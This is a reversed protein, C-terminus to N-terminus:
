RADVHGREVAEQHADLRPFVVREDEFTLQAVGELAQLPEALGLTAGRLVHALPECGLGGGLQEGEALQNRFVLVGVDEAHHERAGRARRPPRCVEVEVEGARRLEPRVPAVLVFALATGDLSCEREEAAVRQVRQLPDLGERLQARLVALRRDKVAVGALEVVAAREVADDGRRGVWPQDIVVLLVARRVLQEPEVVQALELEPRGRVARAAGRDFRVAVPDHGHELAGAVREPGASRDQDDDVVAAVEGRLNEAPRAQPELLAEAAVHVATGTASGALEELVHKDCGGSDPAPPKRASTRCKGGFPPRLLRWADSNLLTPIRRGKPTRSKARTQVPIVTDRRPSPM